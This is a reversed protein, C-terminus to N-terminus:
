VLAVTLLLPAGGDRGRMIDERVVDSEVLSHKIGGGGGGSRAGTGRWFIGFTREV